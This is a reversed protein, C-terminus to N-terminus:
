RELVYCDIPETGTIAAVAIEIQARQEDTMHKDVAEVIKNRFHKDHISIGSSFSEWHNALKDAVDHYQKYYWHSEKNCHPNELIFATWDAQLFLLVEAALEKSPYALHVGYWHSRTSPLKFKDSIMDGLKRAESRYGGLVVGSRLWKIIKNKIRPTIQTPDIQITTRVAMTNAARAVDWHTHPRTM